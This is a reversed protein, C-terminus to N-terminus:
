ERVESNKIIHPTPLPVIFDGRYGRMKLNRCLEDAIHWSFLLAYAPQDQYLRTEELVPIKTGPMYKGIKKSGAIELVCEIMSDDLGMYHVLTSARSPASIGYVKGSKNIAETLLQHMEHKSKEARRQFDPIWLSSALGASREEALLAAVSEHVPYNGPRSAYVRISGGHTPIKKVYFIQFGHKELLNKLSTLSYYRLHEHYVTDYQLGQVVAGLYHSESIFVGQEGTLLSVAEVIEHVPHIHAFVNAATVVRANGYKRSIEGATERSFFVQLTEIGKSRAIEGALTPEVGLVKMGGDMFNSLLTGDNSGIDIVFDQPQLCLREKVEQFLNKFNDRLIKTTGSTYPYEPPFLIAPDAAFGLQVLSCHGCYLLEAPFWPEAPLPRGMDPMTNVPPLYGIFLVSELNKGGCSQCNEIPGYSTM